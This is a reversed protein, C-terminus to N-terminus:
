IPNQTNARRWRTRNLTYPWAALVQSKVSHSPIKLAGRKGAEWPVVGAQNLCLDRFRHQPLDHSWITEPRIVSITEDMNQRFCELPVCAILRTKPVIKTYRDLFPLVKEKVDVDERGVGLVVREVGLDRYRHLKSEEPDGEAFISISLSRPDRGARKCREQLETMVRRFDEIAMDAPCWGEETQRVRNAADISYRSHVPEM